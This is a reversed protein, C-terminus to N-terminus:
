TKVIWLILGTFVTGVIGYLWKVAANTSRMQAKTAFNKMCDRRQLSYESKMDDLTKVLHKVDGALTILLDHDSMDDFRKKEEETVVSVGGYGV